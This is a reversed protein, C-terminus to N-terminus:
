LKEQRVTPALDIIGVDKTVVCEHVRVSRVTVLLQGIEDDAHDVLARERRARAQRRHACDALLVADTDRRRKLRVPHEFIAADENRARLRAKVDRRGTSARERQRRGRTRTRLRRGHRDTPGDRRQEFM